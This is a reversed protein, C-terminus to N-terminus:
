PAGLHPSPACVVRFGFLNLHYVIYFFNRDSVAAFHPNYEPAQGAHCTWPLTVPQL